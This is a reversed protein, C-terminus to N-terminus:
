LEDGMVIGLTKDIVWLQNSLGHVFFVTAAMLNWPILKEAFKRWVKTM